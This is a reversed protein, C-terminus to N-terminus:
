KIQVLANANQESRWKVCSSFDREWQSCDITKGFVFYQHFRAKISTCDSYEEKYMHCPRVQFVSAFV